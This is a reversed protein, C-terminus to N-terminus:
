GKGAAQVVEPTRVKSKVRKLCIPSLSIVSFGGGAVGTTAYIQVTDNRKNDVLKYLTLRDVGKSFGLKCQKWSCKLPRLSRGKKEDSEEIEM